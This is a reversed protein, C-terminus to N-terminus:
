NKKEGSTKEVGGSRNSSSWKGGSCSDVRSDQVRVWACMLVNWKRSLIIKRSILIRIIIRHHSGFRHEYARNEMIKTHNKTTKKRDNENPKITKDTPWGKKGKGNEHIACKRRLLPSWQLATSTNIKQIQAPIHDDLFFIEARKVNMEFRYEIDIARPGDAPHTIGLQIWNTWQTSKLGIRKPPQM